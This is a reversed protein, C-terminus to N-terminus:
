LGAHDCSTCKCCFYNALAGHSIQSDLPKRFLELLGKLLLFSEFVKVLWVRGDGNQFSLIEDQPPQEDRDVVTDELPKKEDLQFDEDM